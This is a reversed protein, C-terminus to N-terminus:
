DFAVHGPTIRFFSISTPMSNRCPGAASRDIRRRTKTRDRAFERLNVSHLEVRVRMLIIIRNCAIHMKHHSIPRPRARFTVVGKNVIHPTSNLACFAISLEGLGRGGPGSQAHWADTAPQIAFVDFLVHLGIVRWPVGERVAPSFNDVGVVWVTWLDRFALRM